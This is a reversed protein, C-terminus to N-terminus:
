PVRVMVPPNAEIEIARDGNQKSGIDLFEDVSSVFIKGDGPSGTTASSLITDVVKGVENDKAIIELKIHRIYEDEQTWVGRMHVTTVLRTRGRGKVEELTLGGVGIRKLADDVAEFKERRIVAEIKKM